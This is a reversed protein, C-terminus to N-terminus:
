KKMFHPTCIGSESPCVLLKVRTVSSTLRTGGSCASSTTHERPQDARLEPLPHGININLVLVHKSLRPTSRQEDRDHRLDAIERELEMIRHDKVLIWAVGDNKLSDKEDNLSQIRSMVMQAEEQCFNAALETESRVREEKKMLENITTVEQHVSM